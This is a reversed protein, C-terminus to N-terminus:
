EKTRTFNDLLRGRIAEAALEHARENPHADFRSVTLGEDAHPALVPELDLVPIKEEQCYNVLKAHAHHFDYEPGLNHLFPFVVIKLEINHDRCIQHIESMKRQMDLWPEGNYYEKVFSYYEQVEPVTFMKLRFYAFNLFYSKQYLFFSPRHSSLAAYYTQHREHFIEIDNLCVVYVFTDVRYNSRTLMELIVKVWRTDKGADALNSVVFRGPHEHELSAAVRNSFRDTVNPVGHGFTFSDGVFCIHHQDSSISTLFERDDRYSTYVGNHFKLFKQDPAVHKQFWKQSVLTMNFSDSEDFIVAFYIEVLTCAALF